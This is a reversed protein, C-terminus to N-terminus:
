LLKMENKVVPLTKEEYQLRRERIKESIIQCKQQFAYFEELKVLCQHCIASPFDQKVTLTINVLNRLLDIIRHNPEGSSPFIPKLDRDLYCFRCYSEPQEIVCDLIENGTVIM